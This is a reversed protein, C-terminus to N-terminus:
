PLPRSMVYDHEIQGNVDFTRTGARSFGSKLYFRQARVNQQNVGLWILAAGRAGAAEVAATMLAHSPRDARHVGHHEPRVYLKSLEAVPGGGLQEAVVPDLPSRYHILCYGLLPGGDDDRAVLVTSDPDTLHGRFQEPGLEARIFAAVDAASLTPPCALPFTAAALDALDGALATDTAREIIVPSTM